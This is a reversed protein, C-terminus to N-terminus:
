QITYSKFQQRKNGTKIHTGSHAHVSEERKINRIHDHVNAHVHIIYIYM